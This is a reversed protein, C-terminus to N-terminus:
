TKKRKRIFATVLGGIGFLVVSAPEPVPTVHTRFIVYNDMNETFNGATWLWEADNEIGSLPANKSKYRYWVTDSDNAGYSVPADWGTLLTPDFDPNDAWAAHAVAEWHTTDTVLKNNGTEYFYGSSLVMSGLFGGPNNPGAPWQHDTGSIIDTINQVAFYFDMTQGVPMNGFISNPAWWHESTGRWWTNGGWNGNGDYGYVWILDDGTVCGSAAIDAECIGAFSIASVALFVAVMLFKIRM